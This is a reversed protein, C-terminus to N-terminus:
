PYSPPPPLPAGLRRGTADFWTYGDWYDGRRDRWHGGDWYYAPSAYYIPAAYDGRQYLGHYGYYCGSYDCYHYCGYYDCYNECAALSLAAAGAAAALAM